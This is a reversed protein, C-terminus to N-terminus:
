RQAFASLFAASGAGDPLARLTAVLAAVLLAVVALAVVLRVLLGVVAVVRPVSM